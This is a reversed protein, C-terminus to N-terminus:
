YRQWLRSPNGWRWLLEGGKGSRGGQSTRAQEITTSHDIIWLENFGRSSIMVQDLKANYELANGHIWDAISNQYHNLNILGPHENVVGYNEKASDFDQILHDWVHWEWVIEGGHDPSPRVEILHDPWLSTPVLLQQIGDLM